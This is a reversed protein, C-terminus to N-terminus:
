RLKSYTHHVFYRRVTHFYGAAQTPAVKQFEPRNRENMKFYSRHTGNSKWSGVDDAKLDECSISDLDIIFTCNCNVGLPQIRCVKDESTSKSILIEVLESISYGTSTQSYVPLEPDDNFYLLPTPKECELSELSSSSSTFTLRQRFTLSSM